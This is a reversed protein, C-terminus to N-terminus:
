IYAQADLPIGMVTSEFLLQDFLVDDSFAAASALMLNYQLGTMFDGCEAREKGLREFLMSTLTERDEKSEEHIRWLLGDM